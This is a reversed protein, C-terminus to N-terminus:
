GGTIGFNEYVFVLCNNKIPEKESVDFIIQHPKLMDEGSILLILKQKM